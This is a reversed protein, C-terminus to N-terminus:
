AFLEPVRAKLAANLEDRREWLSRYWKTRAAVQYALMREKAVYNRAEDAIKRAAEPYALQRLLVSRLEMADSFLFGTKGDEITNAYVVKSAISAVRCSSAEIFKLDSKARNFLTDALPMFAIEASGLLKIYSSYDCLPTFVKHPTDLADFFAQDHVVQFNLRGGVARAVENLAPMLPAWDDARNLAAFSM